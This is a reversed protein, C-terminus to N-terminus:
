SPNIIHSLPPSVRFDRDNDKVRRNDWYVEEKTQRLVDEDIISLNYAGAPTPIAIHWLRRQRAQYLILTKQDLPDRSSRMKHIQLKGWFSALMAVRDAPWDAEEMAVIMRPVAQCFDEWKIDKDDLAKNANHTSAAPVWSTSGDPKRAIVMADDDVSAPNRLAEDLGDNTYYWLEVYEGKHMKRTAYTSPIVPTTTPMPRDPIPIYKTKNKKMEEKRLTQQEEATAIALQDAAVQDLALQQEQRLIEDHIQDRWQQKDVNNGLQWINTLIQIAQAETTHVNVLPARTLAYAASAYDPCHALAPDFLLPPM